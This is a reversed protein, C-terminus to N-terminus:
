TLATVLKSAGSVDVPSQAFNVASISNDSKMEEQLEVLQKIDDSNITVDPTKTKDSKDTTNKDVELTITKTGEAVLEVKGSITGRRSAKKKSRSRITKAKKAGGPLELAQSVNSNQGM